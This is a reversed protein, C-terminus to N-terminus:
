YFEKTKWPQFIWLKGSNGHGTPFDRNEVRKGM